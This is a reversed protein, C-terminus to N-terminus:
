RLYEFLKSELTIMENNSIVNERYQLVIHFHEEDPVVAFTAGPPFTNPPLSMSHIIPFNLLANVSKPLPAAMTFFFSALSPGRSGRILRYYLGSPLRRFGRMMCDYIGVADRNLQSVTQKYISKTLVDVDQLHEKALKYFLFSLRNGIINSPVGKSRISQPVPIWFDGPPINRQHLVTQVAIATAALLYPMVTLPAGSKKIQSAKDFISRRNFKWVKIKEPKEIASAGELISHNRKRWKPTWFLRTYYWFLRLVRLKKKFSVCLKIENDQQILIDESNGCLISLLRNVGHADMFLHHWSTILTSSRNPHIVLDFTLPDKDLSPQREQVEHPIIQASHHVIVKLTKNRQGQVFYPVGFFKKQIELNAIRNIVYSDNIVKSLHDVNLVGRVTITQQCIGGSVSHRNNHQEMALFFCDASSLEIQREHNSM